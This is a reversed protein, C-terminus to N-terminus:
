LYKRILELIDEFTLYGKEVSIKLYDGNFAVYQEYSIYEKFNDYTYTGYTRIDEDLTTQDYTMNEGVVLGALMNHVSNTLSFMNETIFNYHYASVLSYSETYEQYVEVNTLKVSTYSSGNAQIFRHGVYDSANEATILEWKNTDADFFSHATIAKVVTGDDFTLEIITQDGFGHNVILAAPVVAYRGNFFDWVLLMDDYTIYQIEKQTGDALTVLTDPTVCGDSPKEEITGQNFTLSITITTNDISKIKVTAIISVGTGYIDDETGIITYIKGPSVEGESEPELESEVGQKDGSNFSIDGPNAGEIAMSLEGGNGITVDIQLTVIAECIGDSDNDELKISSSSLKTESITDITIKPVYKVDLPSVITYSVSRVTSIESELSSNYTMELTQYFIVYRESLIYTVETGPQATLLYVGRTVLGTEPDRYNASKYEATDFVFEGNEIIPNGEDDLKLHKGGAVIVDYGEGAVLSFYPPVQWIGGKTYYQIGPYLTTTDNLLTGDASYLMLSLTITYRKDIYKIGFISGTSMPEYSTVSVSSTTQVIASGSTNNTYVKGGLSVAVLTGNVTLKAEPISQGKKATSTDPYKSPYQGPLNSGEDTFNTYTVGGDTFAVYVILSNVRVRAGENITMESGPMLKFKQNLNYNAVEDNQKQYDTRDFTIHFMWSVPFVFSDSSVTVITELVLANTSAGGYFHLDLIDTTVDYKAELRAGPSLQIVNSTSNGVMNGITTNHQKNAFLNAYAKMNGGYNIVVKTTINIFQFQNFPSYQYSEMEAYIASMVTGGKFDRVVFPEFLTGGSSVNVIAPTTSTSEDDILGPVHLVGSVGVYANDKLVLKAFYGATQGAYKSGGSGGSIEGSIVLTGNVFVSCNANVTM